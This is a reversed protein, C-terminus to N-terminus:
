TNRNQPCSLNTRWRRSRDGHGASAPSLIVLADADPSTCVWVGYRNEVVSALVYKEAVKRKLEGVAGESQTRRLWHRSIGSHYEEYNAWQVHDLLKKGPPKAFSIIRDTVYESWDVRTPLGHQISPFAGQLSPPMTPPHGIVECTPELVYFIETKAPISGQAVTMTAVEWIEGPVVERVCMVVSHLWPITDSSRPCKSVAFWFKSMVFRVCSEESADRSILFTSV